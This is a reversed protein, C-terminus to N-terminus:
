HLANVYSIAPGVMIHEAMNRGTTTFAKRYVRLLAQGADHNLARDETQLLDPSHGM